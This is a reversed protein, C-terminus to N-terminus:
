YLYSTIRFGVENNRTNNRNKNWSIDKTYLTPHMRGITMQDSKRKPYYLSWSWRSSADWKIISNRFLSWNVTCLSTHFQSDDFVLYAKM